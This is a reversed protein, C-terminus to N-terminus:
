RGGGSRLRSVSSRLSGVADSRREFDRLRLPDDATIVSREDLLEARDGSANRRILRGLLGPRPEEIVSDHQREFGALAQRFTAGISRGEAENVKIMISAVDDPDTIECLTVPPPSGGRVRLGATGQAILLVRRDVKLLVLSTGRSMPYRGLVELIGAPSPSAGMANLAGALGNKSRMLKKFGAGVALILGLVMGLSALTQATSGRASTPPAVAEGERGDGDHARSPGSPAGLPRPRRDNVPKQAGEDDAATVPPPM